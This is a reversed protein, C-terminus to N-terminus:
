LSNVESKHAIDVFLEALGKSDTAKSIDTNSINSFVKLLTSSSLCKREGDGHIGSVSVFPLIDAVKSLMRLVQKSPQSHLKLYENTPDKSISFSGIMISLCLRMCILTHLCGYEISLEQDLESLTKECSKDVDDCNISSHYEDTAYKYGGFICAICKLPETQGYTTLLAYAMAIAIENVSWTYVADGFDIIGTVSTREVNTIVNADNCDGMIVSRRFLHSIPIVQERFNKFVADVLDKIDPEDIYVSFITYTSAFNQLDWCHERHFAPHDFGKLSNTISGLSFGLNVMLLPTSSTIERAKDLTPGRIWHFLRSAITQDKGCLSSIQSYAIDDPVDNRDNNSAYFCRPDTIYGSRVKLPLPVLPHIFSDITSTRDYSSITTLLQSIGRLIDPNDSEVANYFKILYETETASPFHADHASTASVARLYFNADDYSELQAISGVDVQLQWAASTIEHVLSVDPVPKGNKRRKEEENSQAM